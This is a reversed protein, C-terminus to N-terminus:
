ISVRRRPHPSPRSPLRCRVGTGPAATVTVRVEWSHLSTPYQSSHSKVALKWTGDAAEGVFRNVAFRFTGDIGGSSYTHPRLVQVWDDGAAGEVANPGGVWVGFTGHERTEIDLIFEVYEIFDIGSDAIELTDRKFSGYPQVFPSDGATSVPHSACASAVKLAPLLTWDESLDVAAEADVLGFGYQESYSYPDGTGYEDAGLDIYGGGAADIKRASEALIIKVDRWTLRPNAERMLAVVGAVVPSASSTGGFSYRWRGYQSTTFIGQNPDLGYSPGCVWLNTGQESVDPIFLGDQGVACVPIVGIHSNNEDLTTFEEDVAGRM